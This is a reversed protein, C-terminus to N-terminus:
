REFHEGIRLPGHRSSAAVLYATSWGILVLGSMGELSGLLRWDHPLVIDGYGITSFTTTSFYLADEMGQLAGIAIYILAWFWIEGTHVILLGLVTLVIAITRGFDHTHLRFVPRWVGMTATVAM